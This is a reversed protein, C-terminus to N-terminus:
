IRTGATTRIMGPRFGTPFRLDFRLVVSYSCGELRAKYQGWSIGVKMIEEMLRAWALIAKECLRLTWSIEAREHERKVKVKSVVVM